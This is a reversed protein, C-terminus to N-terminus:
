MYPCLKTDMHTKYCLILRKKNTHTNLSFQNINRKMSKGFFLFLRLVSENSHRKNLKFNHMGTPGHDLHQHIYEHVKQVSLEKIEQAKELAPQVMPDVYSHATEVAPKVYAAATDM